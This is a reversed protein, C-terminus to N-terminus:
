SALRNHTRIAHCNGCVLECKELEKILTNMSMNSCVLKNIGHMKNSLHDFEMIWYDYVKNCDVCPNLKLKKVLDRKEIVLPNTTTSIHSYKPNKFTRDKHCNRCVVDCKEIEINILKMSFSILRSVGKHKDRLHDFEYCYSPLDLVSCDKCGHQTKYQDLFAKRKANQKIKTAKYKSQNKLYHEKSYIKRCEKCMSQHSPIERDKCKCLRM